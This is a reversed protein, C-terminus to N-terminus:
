SVVEGDIYTFIIWYLTNLIDFDIKLLNNIRCHIDDEKDLMIHLQLPPYGASEKYIM